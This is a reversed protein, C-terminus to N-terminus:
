QYKSGMYNPMVLYWNEDQMDLYYEKEKENEQIIRAIYEKIYNTIEDTVVLNEKELEKIVENYDFCVEEIIQQLGAKSKYCNEITKHKLFYEDKLKEQRKQIEALERELDKKIIQSLMINVKHKTDFGRFKESTYVYLHNNFCNKIVNIFNTFGIERAKDFTSKSLEWEDEKVGIIGAITNKLKDRDFNNDDEKENILGVEKNSSNTEDKKPTNYKPKSVTKGFGIQIVKGEQKLDDGILESLRDHNIYYKTNERRKKTPNYASNTYYILGKQKLMERYTKITKNTIGLDREIDEQKPFAYGYSKNEYSYIYIFLNILEKGICKTLKFMSIPIPTFSKHELVLSIIILDDYDVSNLDKDILISNTTQLHKLAAKIKDKNNTRRNLELGQLLLSINTLCINNFNKNQILFLYLTISLKDAGKLVNNNFSFKYM